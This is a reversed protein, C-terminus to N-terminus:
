GDGFYIQGLSNKQEKPQISIGTLAMKQESNVVNLSDGKYIAIHSFESNYNDIAQKSGISAILSSGHTFPCQNIDHVGLIVRSRNGSNFITDTYGSGIIIDNSYLRNFISSDGQNSIIIVSKKKDEETLESCDMNQPVINTGFTKLPLYKTYTKLGDLTILKNSM